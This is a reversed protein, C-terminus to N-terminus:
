LNATKKTFTICKQPYTHRVMTEFLFAHSDGKETASGPNSHLGPATVLSMHSCLLHCMAFRDSSPSARAKRPPDPPM